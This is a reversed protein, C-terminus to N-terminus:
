YDEPLFAIWEGVAPRMLWIPKGDLAKIPPTAYLADGPEGDGATDAADAILVQLLEGLTAWFPVLGTRGDLDDIDPTSQGDAARDTLTEEWDKRTVTHGATAALGFADQLVRFLTDSVTRVPAGRFTAIGYGGMERIVGEAIAQQETIVVDPERDFISTM